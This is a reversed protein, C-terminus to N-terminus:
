ACDATMSEPMVAKGYRAICFLVAYARRFSGSGASEDDQRRRASTANSRKPTDTM